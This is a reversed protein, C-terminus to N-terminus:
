QYHRVASGCPEGWLGTSAIPYNKTRDSVACEEMASKSWSHMILMTEDENMFALYGIRSSTLRVGGEMAFDTIEQLDAETMQSLRLLAELRQEELRLM